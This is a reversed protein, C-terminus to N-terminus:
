AHPFLAGRSNIFRELYLLPRREYLVDLPSDNSWMGNFDLMDHVLVQLDDDFTGAAALRAIERGVGGLIDAVQVRADLKSDILRISRLDAPPLEVHGIPTPLRAANIISTRTFEDLTGYNDVLLEFPVDGLRIRWALAVVKLTSAMPDMDRLLSPASGEYESAFHRADWTDNLIETVRSDTSIKRAEDLAAFFPESTPATTGARLYFRILNNYLLLLARWKGEGIAAPGRDHLDAALQRGLGSEALAFGNEHAQEAIMLDILKATVYYSKDILNINGRDRLESLAELLAPRNRHALATTSKIEPAQARMAHRLGDMWAVADDLEINVSAHVFVPHKAGMLNEGESASEDCAITIIDPYPM